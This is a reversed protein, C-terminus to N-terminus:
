EGQGSGPKLTLPRDLKFTLASEAPLEINRNGTM